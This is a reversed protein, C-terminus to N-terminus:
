LEMPTETKELDVHLKADMKIPTMYDNGYLNILYTDYDSYSMFRENEFEYYEASLWGDHIMVRKVRNINAKNKEFFSFDLVILRDSKKNQLLLMLWYMLQGCPRYVLVERVLQFLKSFISSGEIDKIKKQNSVFHELLFIASLQLNYLKSSRAAYVM